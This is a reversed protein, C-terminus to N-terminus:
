RVWRDALAHGVRPFHRIGFVAHKTRTGPVLLSETGGMGRLVERTVVGVDVKPISLTHARNEPTRHRNLEEVRPSDFEGPCVLHM